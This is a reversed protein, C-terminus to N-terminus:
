IVMKLGNESDTSESIQYKEILEKIEMANVPVHFVSNRSIFYLYKGEKSFMAYNGDYTTLHLGDAALLFIKNSNNNVAAATEGDPSIILRNFIQPVIKGSQHDAINSFPTYKYKNFKSNLDFYMVQNYDVQKQGHKNDRCTYGTAVVSLEDKSFNADCVKRYYPSLNIDEIDDDYMGYKTKYRRIEEYNYGFSFDADRQIGNLDWIRITSDASSTIIYKGTRNFECSWVTDNHGVLSDYVSFRNLRQNLHWIYCKKDCSSTVLFRGDPSIDISNIRENQGELEAEIQGSRNYVKVLNDIVAAMLFSEDPFFTILRENMISNLTTSFDFLKNGRLDYVIGNNDDFVVALLSDKESLELNAPIKEINFYNVKGTPINYIFVQQNEMWGYIFNGNKSMEADIVTSILIKPKMEKQLLFLANTTDVELLLLKNFNDIIIKQLVTSTKYKEWLEISEVLSNYPNFDSNLLIKGILNNEETNSKSSLYIRLVAAIILIFVILSIRSIRTLIKQQVLYKQRSQDIFDQLHKPLILRNEYVALYDLDDKKLPVGRNEFTYYANELYKRVELLEKEALTFHEYIKAALADHRLEYKGYQDKDRLIRLNVFTQILENMVPENVDKGLTRAYERADEPKIQQRTGKVSVFSKLVTLATDPDDLLSLQEELFSGLLDSVDGIKNLLSLTFSVEEESDRTASSKQTNEQTVSVRVKNEGEPPPPPLSGVSLRYIKDLSVQLYTLEIDAEGPSLKELLSEAFGEELNINFANCPGKIVEMANRHLMKEIRVRNSFITPIHKEFETFGAMYEERMVFIMRCQLESENLTKVIRIFANREEKDGFIFLEEFQDFIFFVPKYHDLYLSRVGKKFDGPTAFKNNQKTISAGKISIAISEVINGGRRIMLPLWDTDLFKNALGCNILSSKGTGSVGYVLLLNSEFVHQYLEEIERDRGFFIDRDDKTYSDLFKFPSKM